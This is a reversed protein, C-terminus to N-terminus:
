PEVINFDANASIDFQNLNDVILRRSNVTFIKKM